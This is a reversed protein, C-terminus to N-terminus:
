GMKRHVCFIAKLIALHNRFNEEIEKGNTAWFQPYVVGMAIMVGHPLFHCQLNEIFGQAIGECEEKV